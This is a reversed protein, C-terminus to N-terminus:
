FPLFDRIPLSAISVSEALFRARYVAKIVEQGESLNRRQRQRKNHIPSAASLTHTHTINSAQSAWQNQSCGKQLSHTHPTKGIGKAKGPRSGHIFAWCDM